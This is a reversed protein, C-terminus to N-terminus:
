VSRTLSSRQRGIPAVASAYMVTSRRPAGRARRRFTRSAGHGRERRAARRSGRGGRRSASRERRSSRRCGSRRRGPPRPRPRSRATSGLCQPGSDCCTTRARAAIGREGEPDPHVTLVHERIRLVSDHDGLHRRLRGGEVLAEDREGHATDLGDAAVERSASAPSRVTVQQVPRSIGRGSCRKWPM